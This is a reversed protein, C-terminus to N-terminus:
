ISITTHLSPWSPYFLFHSGCHSVSICILTKNSKPHKQNMWYSRKYHITPNVKLPWPFIILLSNGLYISMLNQYEYWSDNMTKNSFHQESFTITCSLPQFLLRLPL